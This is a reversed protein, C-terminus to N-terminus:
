KARDVRIFVQPWTTKTVCFVTPLPVTESSRTPRPSSDLPPTGIVCATAFAPSVMSPGSPGNADISFAAM